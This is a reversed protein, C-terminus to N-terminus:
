PKQYCAGGYGVETFIEKTSDVPMWHNGDSSIAVRSDGADNEGFAIFYSGTWIVGRGTSFINQDKASTWTEGSGSFAITTSENWKGVIVFTNNGYAVGYATGFGTGFTRYWDSGGVGVGPGDYFVAVCNQSTNTGVAVFKGAGFAIDRPTSFTTYAESGGSQITNWTIGDSSIRSDSNTGRDGVALYVTGNM